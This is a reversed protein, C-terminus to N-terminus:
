RKAPMISVVAGTSPNMVATLPSQTISVVEGTTPNLVAVVGAPPHSCSAPSSAFPSIQALASTGVPEVCSTLSCGGSGICFGAAFPMPPSDFPSRALRPALPNTTALIRQLQLPLARHKPVTQDQRSWAQPTLLAYGGFVTVAMVILGISVWRSRMLGRYGLVRM